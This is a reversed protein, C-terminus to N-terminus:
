HIPVSDTAHSQDRGTQEEEGAGRQRVISIGLLLALIGASVVCYPCIARIVAVELYTLYASYITGALALGFVGLRLTESWKPLRGEAVLFALILLYLGAGFLAIPMGGIEAYRSNNVSDCDGIGYCAARAGAVKVWSLYVSDALGLGALLMSLRRMRM